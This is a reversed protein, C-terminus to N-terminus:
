RKVQSNSNWFLDEGILSGVEHGIVEAHQVDVRDLNVKGDLEHLSELSHQSICAGCIYCNGCDTAPMELIDVRGQEFPSGVKIFM